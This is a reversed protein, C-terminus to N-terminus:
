KSGKYDCMRGLVFKAVDYTIPCPSFDKMSDGMLLDTQDELDKKSYGLSELTPMGVQAMFARMADGAILGIQEPTADYPVDAGFIEAIKRVREPVATAFLELQPPTALGCLLGHHLHFVSALSQAIAHGLTTISDSFALGALSSALSMGSRATINSGDNVADNLHAKVLRLSEYGRLDSMPNRQVGTIAEVSHAVVDMGTWATINPPVGVTLEPDVIALEAGSIVVGFKKSTESNSIVGVITVESGTGSTTPITIIPVDPKRPPQGMRATIPVDENIILSAGKATDMSSGGGLAIIIDAKANRIFAAAVGVSDSPADALCDDFVSCAVEADKIVKEVKATVGAGTVGKDTVIVASKAGLMKLRGGLEALAGAGFLMTAAQSMKQAM